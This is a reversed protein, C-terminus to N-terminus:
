PALALLLEALETPHAAHLDHDAPPGFWRLRPDPLGALAEAVARRKARAGRGNSGHDAPVLLVPATISPYLVAPDHLWLDELIALHRDLTLWPRITGGEVIEFNAMAGEVSSAPWGPHAARVAAAMRAAPTGALEPPRLQRACDEWTDFTDRLRIWGGDVLALAHVLDPRDHALQLAVNGGWSQGAVVPRDWGLREIVCALDAACTFLDYGGGPKASRGHGRQDVAAVAHGSAALVAAVGDWLRANSALGHVLLFPREAGDWRRLHLRVGGTAEVLDDWVAGVKAYGAGIRTLLITTAPRPPYKTPLKGVRSSAALIAAPRGSAAALSTSGCAALV